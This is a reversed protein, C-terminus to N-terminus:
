RRTAGVIAQALRTEEFGVLVDGEVDFTPLSTRPNLMRLQELAGARRDVDVEEYQIGREGLWRKARACAACWTASYMEITIEESAAALSMPATAVVVPEHAGSPLGASRVPADPESESEISAQNGSIAPPNVRGSAYILVLTVVSGCVLLAIAVLWSAPSRAPNSVPRYSAVFGVERRRSFLSLRHQQGDRGM